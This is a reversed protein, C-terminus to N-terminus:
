KVSGRPIYPKKLDDTLYPRLDKVMGRDLVYGSRAGAYTTFVDPIDGSAAMIQFKDHFAEGNVYEFELKINPYKKEFAAVTEPWYASQPNALDMQMYVSLTVPANPDAKANDGQGMAFVFAISCLCVLLLAISKKM